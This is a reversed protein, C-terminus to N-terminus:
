KAVPAISRCGPMGQYVNFTEPNPACYEASCFAARFPSVKKTNAISPDLMSISAFQQFHQNGKKKASTKIRKKLAAM